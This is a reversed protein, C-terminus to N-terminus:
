RNIVLSNESKLLFFGSCKGYRSKALHFFLRKKKERKKKERKKKVKAGEMSSLLLAATGTLPPHFLIAVLLVRIM